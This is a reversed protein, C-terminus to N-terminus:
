VNKIAAQIQPDQAATLKYFNQMQADTLKVEIDPKIGGTDALSVGGKTYYKSTSLILGAGDKLEIPTQACGKGTTATGIVTAKNYEQLSAAFFEAASISNGNILVAMPANIESKGSRFEEVEGAKTKNSIIVGEPLLVDLCNVLVTMAGGPNNRVDFVFGKAGKGQLERIASAFENDVNLDFGSIKVYGINGLLQSEVNKIHFPARVINLEFKKAPNMRSIQLRVKTGGVGRVKNVAAEYGIKDVTEGDVGIIIDNPLMGAIAAPSGEYVEVILIGGTKEDQVVNVGIGEMSSNLSDVYSKYDEKTLYHSWKDGLFAVMGTLAGDVMKNKDYDNVFNEEIYSQVEAIRKYEENLTNFEGLMKESQSNCVFFTICCTAASALLMLAITTTIYRKKM